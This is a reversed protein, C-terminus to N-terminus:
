IGQSLGHVRIYVASSQLDRFEILCYGHDRAQAAVRRLEGQGEQIQWDASRLRLPYYHPRDKLPM